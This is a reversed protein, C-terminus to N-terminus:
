RTENLAYRVLRFKAALATQAASFDGGARGMTLLERDLEVTNGDRRPTVGQMEQVSVRRSTDASLHGPHTAVPPALREDLAGQFSVEVAKYDPTDVNALNGASAVQRAVAITMQRRLAAVLASDSIENMPRTGNLFDICIDIASKLLLPVGVPIRAM